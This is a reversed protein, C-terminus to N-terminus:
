VVNVIHVDEFLKLWVLDIAVLGVILVAINFCILLLVSAVIICLM